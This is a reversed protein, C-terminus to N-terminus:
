DASSWKAGRNILLAIMEGHGNNVARMLATRGENDTAELMAGKDILLKAIAIAKQDVAVSLAPVGDKDRCQVDAGNEVLLSALFLDSDDGGKIASILLPRGSKFKFNTNARHEILAQAVEKKREKWALALPTLQEEDKTEILERNKWLLVRAVDPLGYYAAWLLPTRRWKQDTTTLSANRDVLQQIIAEKGGKWIAWMLPTWDWTEDRTDIWANNKLLVDVIDMREGIVAWILPTRHYINDKYEPAAGKSLLLSVTESEVAEPKRELVEILEVWKKNIAKQVELPTHINGGDAAAGSKRLRAKSKAKWIGFRSKSQNSSTQSALV